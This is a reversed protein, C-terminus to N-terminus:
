RDVFWQIFRKIGWTVLVMLVLAVAFWKWGGTQFAMVVLVFQVAFGVVQFAFGSRGAWVSGKVEPFEFHNPMGCEPCVIVGREIPIGGLSYGCKTCVVNKPRVGDLKDLGKKRLPDGDGARGEESIRLNGGM